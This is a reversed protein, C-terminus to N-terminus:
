GKAYRAQATYMDVGPKHCARIGLWTAPSTRGSAPNFYSRILPKDELEWTNNARAAEAKKQEMLSRTMKIRM